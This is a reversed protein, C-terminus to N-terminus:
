SVGFLTCDDLEWCEGERVFFLPACIPLEVKKQKPPLNFSEM